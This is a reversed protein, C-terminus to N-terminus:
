CILVNQYTIQLFLRTVLKNDDSFLLNNKIIKMEDINNWYNNDVFYFEGDEVGECLWNSIFIITHPSYSYLYYLHPILIISHM